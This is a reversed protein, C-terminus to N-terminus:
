SKKNQTKANESYLYEYKIEYFAEINTKRKKAKKQAATMQKM